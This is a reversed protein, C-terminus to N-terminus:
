FKQKTTKCRGENIQYRFKGFESVLKPNLTFVFREVIDGSLRDINISHDIKEYLLAHNGVPFTPPSVYSIETESIDWKIVGTVGDKISYTRSYIERHSEIGKNIIKTIGECHLDVSLSGRVDQILCLSILFVNVIFKM